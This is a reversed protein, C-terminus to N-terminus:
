FLYTAGLSGAWIRQEFEAGRADRDGWAYAILADFKWNEGLQTGGGLTVTKRDVDAIHALSVSKAPLPSEDYMFGTRLAVVPNLMYECGVRYRNSDKWDEDFSADQLLVGPDNFTVNTRYFSWDSRQWDVTFTLIEPVPKLALGIGWTPPHRFKQEAHTSEDAGLLSLSSSAKGKITVTAGTRYVAGISAHDSLRYLLGFLGEAGWGENDMDFDYTYDLIQSNAVTKDSERELHDYLLAVGAGAYFGPLIERALTLQSEVIMLKQYNKAKITGAGYSITDQWDSYYGLPSYITVGLTFAPYALYCGLGSPNYFDYTTSTKDFQHPESMLGGTAYSTYDIFMDHTFKYISETEASPPLNAFSNSGRITPHTYLFDAGVGDTKLQALGAPNWYSATWDDALGIFAGGMSCARTGLGGWEYGGAYVPAALLASLLFLTLNSFWRNMIM